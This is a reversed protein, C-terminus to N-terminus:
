ATIHLHIQQQQLIIILLLIIFTLAQMKCDIYIEYMKQHYHIGTQKNKATEQLRQAKQRGQM